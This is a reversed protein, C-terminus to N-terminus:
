GTFCADYGGLTSELQNHVPTIMSMMLQPVPLGSPQPTAEVAAVNGPHLFPKAPQQQPIHISTHPNSGTIPTSTVSGSNVHPVFHNTTAVTTAVAPANGQQANAIVQPVAFSNAYQLIPNLGQCQVFNDVNAINFFSAPDTSVIKLINYLLYLHFDLCYTSTMLTLNEGPNDGRQCLSEFSKWLFPNLKLAKREAEIAQAGRESDVCLFYPYFKIVNTVLISYQTTKSYTNRM